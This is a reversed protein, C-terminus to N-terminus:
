FSSSSIVVKDGSKADIAILQQRFKQGGVVYIIGTEESYVMDKASNTKNFVNDILLTSTGDALNVRILDNEINTMVYALGASQDVVLGRATELPTPGFSVDTGESIGMLEPSEGTGVGVLDVADVQNLAVLFRDFTADYNVRAPGAFDTSPAENRLVNSAENSDPNISLLSNTGPDTVYLNNDSHLYLSSPITLPADEPLGTLPMSVRMGSDLAVEYISGVPNPREGNEDPEPVTRSALYFQGRAEDFVMDDYKQAVDGQSQDSFDTVASERTGRRLDVSVVKVDTALDGATLVWASRNDPALEIATSQVWSEGSGVKGNANFVLESQAYGARGESDYATVTVKAEAVGEPLLVNEARWSGDDDLSATVSAVGADVVVETLDSAESAMATGFVTMSNQSTLAKTPPFDVQVVPADENTLVVTTIDSSQAGDNDTVTLMFELRAEQEFAPVTFSASPEASGEIAVSEGGVQEWLYSEIEGDPDYTTATLDVSQVHSLSRLGSLEVVPARNVRNVVVTANDSVSAGGDDKATAEFVMEATAASGTSPARFTIAGASGDIVDFPVRPGSVQRWIISQVEGDSDSATAALQVQEGANVTVSEGAEVVPASNGAPVSSSSSSAVSSSSSSSSAVPGSDNDDSGGCGALAIAAALATFKMAGLHAAMKTNM